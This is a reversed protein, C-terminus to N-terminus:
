VRFFVLSCVCLTFRVGKSGRRHSPVTVTTHGESTKRKHCRSAFQVRDHWSRFGSDILWNLVNIMHLKVTQIFQYERLYAYHCFICFFSHSLLLRVKWHSVGRLSKLNPILPHADVLRLGGKAERLLQAVVAEDEIPNMSCTSYVQIDYAIM